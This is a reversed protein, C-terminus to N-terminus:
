CSAGAAEAYDAPPPLGRTCNLRAAPGAQAWRAWGHFAPNAEAACFAAGPEALARRMRQNFRATAGASGLWAHCLRRLDDLAVEVLRARPSASAVAGAVAALASRPPVEVAARSEDSGRAATGGGRGVTLRVAAARIPEALTHELFAPERYRVGEARWRGLDYAHDMPCAFPLAMDAPASPHRCRRLVDWTRDCFCALRPMVVTANLAAALALLDRVAARQLGDLLAHRRPSWEPHAEEISARQAASFLPGVLRVFTAGPPDYYEPPDSTWLGAERARQRKGLPYSADGFQYTLHVALARARRGHGVAAHTAQVFRGHGSVFARAPLTGLAFAAPACGSAPAEAACPTFKADSLFVDRSTAAVTPRPPGAAALLGERRLSAAWAEMRRPDKITSGLGAGSVLRHFVVQDNLAPDSAAAVLAGLWARVLGRCGDTNRLYLIGTNPESAMGFGLWGADGPGRSLDLEDTSADLEDTSVLVDALVLLRAEPLTTAGAERVDSAVMWERWGPELWVVDVDSYLVNFGSELLELLFRVKLRGLSQFRRGDHRAYEEGHQMELGLRLMPLEACAEWLKADAAGVFAPSLGAAAAHVWWNRVFDVLGISGFTFHVTTRRPVRPASSRAADNFSLGSRALWRPAEALPAPPPAAAALDRGHPSCGDAFTLYRGFSVLSLVLAAAVATIILRRQAM